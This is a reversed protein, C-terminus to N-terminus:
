DASNEEAVLRDLNTNLRRLLDVLLEIEHKSFGSFAEKNGSDLAERVKPVKSLARRTLSVLSSRGDQPDPQRQILGDREMRSLMQAMSPQEIKALTALQKQSMAGGDRLMYLVPMQGIAFGLPKIQRDGLRAFSRSAMNILPAPNGFLTWDMASSM